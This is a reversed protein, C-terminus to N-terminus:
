YEVIKSCSDLHEIEGDTGTQLTGQTVMAVDFQVFEQAISKEEIEKDAATDEVVLAYGWTFSTEQLLGRVTCTMELSTGNKLLM